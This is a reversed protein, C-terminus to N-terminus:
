PIMEQRSKILVILTGKMEETGASGIGDILVEHWESWVNIALWDFIKYNYIIKHKFYIPQQMTCTVLLGKTNREVM